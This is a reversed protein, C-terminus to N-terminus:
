IIRYIYIVTYNILFKFADVIQYFNPPNFSSSYPISSFSDFMGITQSDATLVRARHKWQLDSKASFQKPFDRLMGLLILLDQGIPVLSWLDYGTMGALWANPPVSRIAKLSLQCKWAGNTWPFTITELWGIWQASITMIERHFGPRLMGTPSLESYNQYTKIFYYNDVITTM